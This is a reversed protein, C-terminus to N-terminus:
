SSFFDNVNFKKNQGAGVSIDGSNIDYPKAPDLADQMLVAKEGPALVSSYSEKEWQQFRKMARESLVAEEADVGGFLEESLQIMDDIEVVTEAVELAMKAAAMDAMEKRTSGTAGVGEKVETIAHKADLAVNYMTIQDELEDATTDIKIKAKRLMTELARGLMEMKTYIDELRKIRGRTKEARKQAVEAEEFQKKRIFSKALAEQEELARRFKAVVEMHNGMKAKFNKVAQNARELHKRSQAIYDRAVAVPAMSVFISTVKRVAARFMAGALIRVKSSTVLAYVLGLFGLHLVIQTSTQLVFLLYALVAPLSWFFGAALALGAVVLVFKGLKGEPRSWFNKDMLQKLQPLGLDNASMEQAM